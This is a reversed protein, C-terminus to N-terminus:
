RNALTFAFMTIPVAVNPTIFSEKVNKVPDRLRFISVMLYVFM